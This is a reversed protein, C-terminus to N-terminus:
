WGPGRKVTSGPRRRQEAHQVATRMGPAGSSPLRPVRCDAATSRSAGETGNAEGDQATANATGGVDHRTVSESGRLFMRDYVKGMAPKDGDCLRLFKVIPTM